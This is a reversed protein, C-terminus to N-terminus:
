ASKKDLPNMYEVQYLQKNRVLAFIRHILKNRINNIILRENKGAQKKRQYYLRIDPLM